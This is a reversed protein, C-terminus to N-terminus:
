RRGGKRIAARYGIREFWLPDSIGAQDRQAVVDTFWEGIWVQGTHPHIGAIQGKRGSLDHSKQYEAWIRRAEQQQSETLSTETTTSM